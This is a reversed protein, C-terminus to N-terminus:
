STPPTIAWYHLVARIVGGTATGACTIVLDQAANIGAASGGAGSYPGAFPAIAITLLDDQEDLVGDNLAGGDGAAGAWLDDIGGTGLKTIHHGASIATTVRISLALPVALAPFFNSSTTVAGATSITIAVEKITLTMAAGSKGEAKM